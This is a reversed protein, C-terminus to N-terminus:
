NFIVEKIVREVQVIHYPQTLVQTVMTDPKPTYEKIYVVLKDEQDVIKNIDIRYGGTPKEGMFVAIVSYNRFDIEPLPPPEILVGSHINVWLKSWNDENKIVYNIKETIGSHTGREITEMNISDSGSLPPSFYNGRVVLMTGGIVVLGLTALIFIIKKNM